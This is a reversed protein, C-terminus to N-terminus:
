QIDANVCRVGKKGCMTKLHHKTINGGPHEYEEKVHELLKGSIKMTTKSLTDVDGVEFNEMADDSMNTKEHQRDYVVLFQKDMPVSDKVMGNHPAKSKKSSITSKNKEHDAKRKEIFKENM